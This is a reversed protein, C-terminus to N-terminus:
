YRDSSRSIKTDYYNFFNNTQNISIVHNSWDDINLMVLKYVICDYTYDLDRILMGMLNSKLSMDVIQETILWSYGFKAKWYYDRNNSLVLFFKLNIPTLKFDQNNNPVNLM